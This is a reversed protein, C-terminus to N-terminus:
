DLAQGLSKPADSKGIVGVLVILTMIYPFLALLQSSIVFNEIGGFYVVLAQALGFFLCALTAGMPHWKGFILAALAIFGHGSILTPRFNSVLALSMSAGGLGALFGSALVGFYQYFKPNLGQTRLAKPHEGTAILHLGFPTKFLLYWIAMALFLAIYVTAYQNLIIDAVSNNAFVDQLAKPMKNELNLPPTISAGEFFLRCFYIAFGPGIFNIATGSIVQNAKFEISAVAHLLALLVTVIGAGLFALWINHTYVAILSGVFAGFTMLGELGINIVGSRESLVGGLSAFILPTSYMLTTGIIFAIETM